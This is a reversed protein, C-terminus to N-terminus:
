VGAGLVSHAVVVQWSMDYSVIQFNASRATLTADIRPLHVGVWNEGLPAIRRLALPPACHM